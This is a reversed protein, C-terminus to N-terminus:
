SLTCEDGDSELHKTCSLDSFLYSAPSLQALGSSEETVHQFRESWVKTSYCVCVCVVGLVWVCGTSMKLLNRNTGFARKRLCTQRYYMFVIGVNNSSLM